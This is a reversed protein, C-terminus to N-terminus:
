MPNNWFVQHCLYVLIQIGKDKDAVNRPVYRSKGSPLARFINLLAIIERFIPLFRPLNNLREQIFISILANFIYFVKCNQSYFRKILDPCGRFDHLNEAPSILIKMENFFQLM